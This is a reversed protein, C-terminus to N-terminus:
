RVVHVPLAPPQYKDEADGFLRVAAYVWSARIVGMGDERIVRRLERDAHRKWPKRPLKGAAIMQYLTDHVASGRMFDDTDIAPGSAGDWCYGRVIRLLGDGYLAAWVEGEHDALVTRSLYTGREFHRLQHLYTSGLRYKYRGHEIRHWDFRRRPHM